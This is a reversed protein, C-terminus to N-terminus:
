DGPKRLADLLAQPQQLSLLLKTGSTEPLMLVRNRTTLLVFAKSHDRLRFHGSSFGPLRTGFLKILPLWESRERLDVIRAADADADLNAVAVRRTLVGAAITLSGADLTVRRRRLVFALLAFAGLIVPLVLWLMPEQRATAVYAMGALAAAASVGPLLWLLRGDPPVIAFERKM